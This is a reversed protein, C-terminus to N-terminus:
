QNVKYSELTSNASLIVPKGEHSVVISIKQINSDRADVAVTNIAVTFGAYVDSVPASSYSTQYPQNKVYEMQSQALSAATQNENTLNLVKVATGLAGLVAVGLVAFLAIGVVIEILSFGMENKIRKPWIGAKKV